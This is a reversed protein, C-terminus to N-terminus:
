GIECKLTQGLDYGLYFIICWIVVVAVGGTWWKDYWRSPKEMVFKGDVCYIPATEIDKAHRRMYEEKLERQSYTMKM